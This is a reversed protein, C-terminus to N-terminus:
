CLDLPPSFRFVFCLSLPSLCVFLLFPLCLLIQSSPPWSCLISLAGIDIKLQPVSFLILLPALFFHWKLDTWVQVAACDSSRVASQVGNEVCVKRREDVLALQDVRLQGALLLEEWRHWRM